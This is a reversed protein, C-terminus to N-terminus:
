RCFGVPIRRSVRYLREGEANFLDTALNEDTVTVDIAERMTSSFEDDLIVFSARTTYKDGLM